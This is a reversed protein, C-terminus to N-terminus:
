EAVGQREPDAGVGPDDLVHLRDGVADLRLCRLQRCGSWGWPPLFSLSLEAGVGSHGQTWGCRCRPALTTLMTSTRSTTTGIRESMLLAKMSKLEVVTVTTATTV